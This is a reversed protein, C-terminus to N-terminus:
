GHTPIYEFWIDKIKEKGKILIRSLQVAVAQSYSRVTQSSRHVEVNRSKIKSLIKKSGAECLIYLICVTMSKVFCSIWNALKLTQFRRSVNPFTTISMHIIVACTFRTTRAAKLQTSKKNAIRQSVSQSVQSVPVFSLLFLSAVFVSAVFVSPIFFSAAFFSAVFVSAFFFSFHM